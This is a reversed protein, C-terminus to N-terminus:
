QSAKQLGPGISVTRYTSHESAPETRSTASAEAVPRPTTHTSVRRDSWLESVWWRIVSNRCVLGLASPPCDTVNRARVISGRLPASFVHASVHAAGNIWVSLGGAPRPSLHWMVFRVLMLFYCMDCECQTLGPGNLPLARSAPRSSRAVKDLSMGQMAQMRNMTKGWPNHGM